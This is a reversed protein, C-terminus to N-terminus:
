RTWLYTELPRLCYTMKAKLFSYDSYFRSKVAIKQKKDVNM